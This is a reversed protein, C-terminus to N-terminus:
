SIPQEVRLSEPESLCKAMEIEFHQGQEDELTVRQGSRVAEVTKECLDIDAVIAHGTGNVLLLILLATKM